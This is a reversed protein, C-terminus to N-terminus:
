QLETIWKKISPRVKKGTVIGMHTVDELLVVNVDKKYKSIEPLFAEADFSEDSKGVLVLVKSTQSPYYRYNLTSKDRCLYSDILPIETYDIDLENFSLKNQKSINGKPKGDIIISVTAIVFYIVISIIINYIIISLVKEM